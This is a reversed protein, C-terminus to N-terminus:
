RGVTTWRSDPDLTSLILDHQATAVSGILAGINSTLEPLLRGYTGDEFALAIAIGAVRHERVMALTRELMAIAERQVEDRYEQEERETRQQKTELRVVGDPQHDSM